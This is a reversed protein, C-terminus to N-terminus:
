ARIVKTVAQSSRKSGWGPIYCSFAGARGGAAVVVIDDPTEVLPRMLSEDGPKLEGSMVHIKKLHAHSTKTHEFLFRRIEPKGWGDQAITRMHEGALVVVYTPQGMVGGSIRMSDALTTLVGEATNSLQNYFQQPGTAAVITVASQNAHLGREVHLPTWPSEAENEAIVYSLRGPHGVTGRDLTGPRSGCVNRMVLRVARGITLNARWGPGFLNDGCNVDLARAIPGNVIMLVGAGGTSTGPGHYGWAPDGIAEVGALVVPMYEPKCGAMVANIAVKEATISVARHEVFAVEKDPEIRAAELMARVRAETPPIVPLGDTWGKEFCLEIAAGPDEVTYRRSVLQTPMVDEKCVDVAV